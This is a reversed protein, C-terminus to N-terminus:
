THSSRAVRRDVATLRDHPQTDVDLFFPYLEWRAYGIRYVPAQPTKERVVELMTLEAQPDEFGLPGDLRDFSLLLSLSSPFKPLCSLRPMFFLFLLNLNM